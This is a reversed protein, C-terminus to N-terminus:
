LGTDLAAAKFFSLHFKRHSPLPKGKIQGLIQVDFSSELIRFGDPFPLFPASPWDEISLKVQFGDCVM